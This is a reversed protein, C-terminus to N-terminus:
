KPKPAIAPKRQVPQPPSVPVPVPAPALVPRAPAVPIQPKSKLRYENITDEMLRLIKVRDYAELDKSVKAIITEYGKEIYNAEARVEANQKKADELLKLFIQM